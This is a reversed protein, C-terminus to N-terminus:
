DTNESKISTPEPPETRISTISQSITQDRIILRHAGGVFHVHLYLPKRARDTPTTDAVSEGEGAILKRAFRGKDKKTLSLDALSRGVDIRTVIRSLNACIRARADNDQLRDALNRLEALGSQNVGDGPVLEESVASVLDQRVKILEVEVQKLRNAVMVSGSEIATLLHQATAELEAVRAQLPISRSPKKSAELPRLDEPRLESLATLLVPELQRAPFYFLCKGTDELDICEYFHLYTKEGNPGLKRNPASGHRVWYGRYRLINKLINLPRVGKAGKGKKSLRAQAARAEAALEDSVIRPYYNRVTNTRGVKGLPSIHGQAAEGAILKRVYTSDWKMAKGYDPNPQDRHKKRTEIRWTPVGEKHLQRAILPTSWGEAAMKFIRAVVAAREPPASFRKHESKELWWPIVPHILIAEGKSAQERMEAFAARVRISKTSSEEHARMALTVAHILEVGDKSGPRFVQRSSTLHVEVGQKQVLKNLLEITTWPDQRSLRDLSEVILASGKPILGNECGAIFVGLAGGEINKGLFASIGRDTLQEPDLDLNNEACYRATAEAQRHESDGDAQQLRSFRIYSYARKKKPLPLLISM